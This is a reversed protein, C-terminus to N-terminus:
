TSLNQYVQPGEQAVVERPVTRRPLAQTENGLFDGVRDTLEACPSPGPQTNGRRDRPGRQIELSCSRLKEFNACAISNIKSARPWM